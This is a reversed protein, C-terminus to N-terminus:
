PLPRWKFRSFLALCAISEKERAADVVWTSVISTPAVQLEFSARPMCHKRKREDRVCGVDLSRCHAGSLASLRAAHMAEERRIKQQYARVGLSRLQFRASSSTRLRSAHSAGERCGTRKYPDVQIYMYIYIHICIYIYIYIYIHIYIYIYLYIYIFMYIYM